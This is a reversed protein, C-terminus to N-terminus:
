RCIIDTIMWWGGIQQLEVAVSRVVGYETGDNWSQHVIVRAQNGSVTARDIVLDEPFDQACLFPDYGGRDFSAVIADVKEVFEETLPGGSRYAGDALANGPYGLYWDYFSEVVQEPAAGRERTLAYVPACGSLILTLVLGLGLVKLAFGERMARVTEKGAM